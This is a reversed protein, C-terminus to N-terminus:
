LANFGCNMCILTETSYTNEGCEPCLTLRERYTEADELEELVEKTEVSEFTRDRWLDYEYDARKAAEASQYDNWSIGSDFAEQADKKYFDLLGDYYKDVLTDFHVDLFKDIDDDDELADFGGPVDAVDEDTLFNNWLTEAVSDKDIKYTYSSSYEAEDWDDADRQNGSVITTLNDYELEVLEKGNWTEELPATGEDDLFDWYNNERFTLTEGRSKIAAECRSCLWGLDVEYRCESKDFLDECWTCEVTNENEEMEEVLEELTMGDPIPKRFNDPVQDLSDESHFTTDDTNLTPEYDVSNDLTDFEEDHDSNYEAFDGKTFVSVAPEDTVTNVEDEWSWITGLDKSDTCEGFDNRDVEVQTIIPKSGLCSLASAKAEDFFDFPEDECNPCKLFYIYQIM